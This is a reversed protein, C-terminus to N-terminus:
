YSKKLKIIALDKKSYYITENNPGFKPVTLTNDLDELSLHKEYGWALSYQFENFNGAKLDADAKFNEFDPHFYIAAAASSLKKDLNKITRDYDDAREETHHFSVKPEISFYTKEAITGQHSHGDSLVTWPDLLTGSSFYVVGNKDISIFIGSTSFTKKEAALKWSDKITKEDKLCANAAEQVFCFFMCLTLLIQKM